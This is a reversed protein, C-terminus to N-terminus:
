IIVNNFQFYAKVNNKRFNLAVIIPTKMKLKLIIIKLIKIKM